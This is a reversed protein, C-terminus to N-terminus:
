LDFYDTLDRSQPDHFITQFGIEKATQINLENDDIFLVDGAPMGIEELVKLYIEEDPKWLGMEYSLFLKNFLLEISSIGHRAQFIKNSAKIHINNTNSLLYLPYRGKLELLLEVRKNPVDLLLSNWAKDIEHDSFPYGITQRVIERFEDDDFMGSEYRRFLQSDTIKQRIREVSKGSIEAFAEVTLEPNINIIVNGFDLLVAKYNSM